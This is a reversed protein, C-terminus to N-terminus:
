FTLAYRAGLSLEFNLAPSSGSMVLTGSAEAFITLPFGEHPGHEMGALVVLGPVMEGVAYMIKAGGGIFPSLPLGGLELPSPYLKVVLMGEFSVLPASFGPLVASAELRLQENLSTSVFGTLPVKLGVELSPTAAESSLAAMLAALTLALLAFSKRITM